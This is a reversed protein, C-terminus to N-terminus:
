SAYYARSFAAETKNFFNMLLILSAVGSVGGYRM